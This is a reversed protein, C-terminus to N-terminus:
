CGSDVWAPPPGVPVARALSLTRLRGRYERMEVHNFDAHTQCRWSDYREHHFPSELSEAHGIVNGNGIGFRARLWLTLRLSSRMMRDNGLIGEASRGVHEIGIATDNIGIVHRCRVKLNVLQYITGDTDILFHACTGPKEGLHSANSAFTSWAGEWTTGDTFHEVIVKPAELRWGWTGYHRRSYAAMQAKRHAGFPIPKWVIVPRLAAAGHRVQAAAPSAPVVTVALVVVAVVALALRLMPKM